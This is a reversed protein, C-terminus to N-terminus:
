FFRFNQSKLNRQTKLLGSFDRNKLTIKWGQDASFHIATMSLFMVCFMLTNLRARLTLGHDILRVALTIFLIIHRSSINSNNSCSFAGASTMCDGGDTRSYVRVDSQLKSRFLLLSDTVAFCVIALSTWRSETSTPRVWHFRCNLWYM